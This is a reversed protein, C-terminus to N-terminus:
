WVTMLQFIQSTATQLLKLGAVIKIEGLKKNRTENARILNYTGHPGKIELRKSINAASLTDSNYNAKNV